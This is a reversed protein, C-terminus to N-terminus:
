PALKFSFATCNLFLETHGPVKQLMLSPTGKGCHAWTSHRPTQPSLCFPAFSPKSIPHSWVGWRWSRKEAEWPIGMPSSKTAQSVRTQMVQDCPMRHCTPPGALWVLSGDCVHWWLCTMSLRFVEHATLESNLIWCTIWWSSFTDCIFGM